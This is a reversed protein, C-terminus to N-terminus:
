KEMGKVCVVGKHNVSEFGMQVDSQKSTWRQQGPPVSPQSYGSRSDLSLRWKLHTYAM